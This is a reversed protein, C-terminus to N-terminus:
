HVAPRTERTIRSRENKIKNNNLLFTLKEYKPINPKTIIIFMPINM